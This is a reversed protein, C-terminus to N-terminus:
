WDLEQVRAGLCPLTARVRQVAAREIDSFIIRQQDGADALVSGDPAVVMSGGGFETGDASGGVRNCLLLYAQNEIARARALTRMIETRAAPWASVVLFLEAGDLADRRYMEPFRLDFCISLATPWGAISAARRHGGAALFVEERMPPFLHGKDYVVPDDAGPAYLCLRNVLAGDDRRSLTSGAIWGNLEDSMSQLTRAVGPSSTDAAADWSEHMYGTTWLEPLLILNAGACERMRGTAVKLNEGPNGDVVPMQVLAVRLSDASGASM